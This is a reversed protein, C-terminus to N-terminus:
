KGDTTQCLRNSGQDFTRNHLIPDHFGVYDGAPQSLFVGELENFDGVTGIRTGIPSICGTFCCFSNAPLQIEKFDAYSPM